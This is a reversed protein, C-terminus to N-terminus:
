SRLVMLVSGMLMLLSCFGTPFFSLYLKEYCSFSFLSSMSYFGFWVIYSSIYFFLNTYLFILMKLFFFYMCPARMWRM